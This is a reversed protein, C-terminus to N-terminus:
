FFAEIEEINKPNILHQEENIVLTNPQTVKYKKKLVDLLKYDLKYDFSYIMVNGNNQKFTSLMFGITEGASLFEADNSYFFLITPITENCEKNHQAILNFHQVELLSYIKKQEIVRPDTKGLREEIISMLVGMDGLEHSFLYPDFIECSDKMLEGQLELAVLNYKLREQSMSVTQYKSYTIAYCLSFGAIFITSAIIFALLIRGLYLPRKEEM